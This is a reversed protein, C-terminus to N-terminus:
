RGVRARPAEYLVKGQELIEVIFWDDQAVRRKVEESSRVILDVAFRPNTRNLIEASKMSPRGTYPLVVLLDVDSDATANRRAHSGFLIIREPKFDRAIRRSLERIERLAVM